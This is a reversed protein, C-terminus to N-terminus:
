TPFAAGAEEVFYSLTQEPAQQLHVGRHGELGVLGGGGLEGLLEGGDL